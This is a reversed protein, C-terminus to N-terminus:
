RWSKDIEFLNSGFPRPSPGARVADLRRRDQRAAPDGRRARLEHGLRWPARSGARPFQDISRLVYGAQFDLLPQPTVAPDDNVPVCTDYGRADMHRLLRCAFESVLDAKLTWSANTYGITFAFNPVGSLMMGKYAM